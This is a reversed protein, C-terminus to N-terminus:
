TSTTPLCGSPISPAAASDTVCNRPRASARTSRLESPRHTWRVPDCSSSAASTASSPPPGYRRLAREADGSALLRDGQEALQAFRLSDANDPNVILRYGNSDNVLYTPDERRGRPPEMVKRLRWIHTELTSGSGASGLDGGWVADLLTDVSVRRNANVLLTALIRAPKAGPIPAAVGGVDLTLPDLDHLLV